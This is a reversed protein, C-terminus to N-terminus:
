AEGPNAEKIAAARAELDVAETERGQDRRLDAYAELTEALTPHDQRLRTERIAIAREFAEAAATEDRTAAYLRGLNTLPYALDPHDPHLGQELISLARELSRRAADHDGAELFLRGLNNLSYAVKVHDPGLVEEEIRVARELLPRASTHDGADMLLTALDNLSSALDPHDPLAQERIALAREYYPRAAEQDGTESILAALNNLSTAVAPHDAGLTSEFIELAQEYLDHATDYDGTVKFLMALNNYSRAVDLHSDGFADRRVQLSREYLPRAATYDGSKYYLNALVDLTRAVNPHNAGFREERIELAQAAADAAAGYEGLETLLHAEIILTQALEPDSASLTSEHIELAERVLPRAGTYNGTMMLLWGMELLGEALAPHRDDLLARRSQLSEALLPRAEDYLGLSQYVRGMTSMLRARLLPQAALESEIKMSGRDLIERVTISGGRTESPELVEFLGVLFESVQKATDAEQRAFTEARLARLLGVTSGVAGAVLALAVLAGAFVAVKHRRVFKGVRYRTSPPSAQVPEDDLHRRIDSALETASPYRRNRDKDITRLVIWDLDGRLQRTLSSRDTGRKRAPGEMGTELATVRTSPMPPEDEHVARLIEEWGSRRLRKWDFPQTGVLLEYLLVGLAYVDTRTDIDRGDWQEPSMYEPTGIFQGVATVMTKDTLAETAKAVGFDIIKPVPGEDGLTVMVNSPKIDRHIIGKQHAHQVGNCVHIFLELREATNMRQRDCFQTIPVGAVYEMAFYPRGDDTAGGDLVRAINPHDMLALAQRESEFRAVIQETDMGPKIIKLAVRRRVPDVQEAEYVEGMGGEGLKDVIRFKGIREPPAAPVFVEDGSEIEEFRTEDENV